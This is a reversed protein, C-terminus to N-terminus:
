VNVQKGTDILTGPNAIMWRAGDNRPRFLCVERREGLPPSIRVAPRLSHVGGMNVISAGASLGGAIPVCERHHVPCVRVHRGRGAFIRM